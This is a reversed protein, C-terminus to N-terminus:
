KILKIDKISKLSNSRSIMDYSEPLNTTNILGPDKLMGDEKDTSIKVRRGDPNRYWIDFYNYSFEWTFTNFTGPRAAYSLEFDSLGTPTLENYTYTVTEFGGDDLITVSIPPMYLPKALDGFKLFLDFQQRAMFYSIYSESLKVTLTFSKSMQHDLQLGPRKNLPYNQNRQQVNSSTISPFSLSTIQSNFFDELTLYPLFMRKMQPKWLANVEPYFTNPMWYIAFQQTLNNLVM